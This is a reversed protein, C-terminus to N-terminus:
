NGLHREGTLQSVIYYRLVDWPVEVSLGRHLSNQMRTPLEDLVVYWERDYLMEGDDAVIPCCIPQVEDVEADLIDFVVFKGNSPDVEDGLHQYFPLCAVPRGPRQSMPDEPDLVWDRERCDVVLHCAM